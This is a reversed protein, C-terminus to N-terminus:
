GYRIEGLISWQLCVDAMSMDMQDLGSEGYKRICTDFVKGVVETTLAFYGKPLKRNTRWCRIARRFDHTNPDFTQEDFEYALWGKDADWEVGYLWYGACHPNNFIGGDDFYGTKFEARQKALEADSMLWPKEAVMAKEQPHAAAAVQLGTARDWGRVSEMITCYYSLALFIKNVFVNKRTYKLGITAANGDARTPLGFLSDCRSVGSSVVRTGIRSDLFTYRSNRRCQKTSRLRGSSTTNPSHTSFSHRSRSWCGFRRRQSGRSHGHTLRMM